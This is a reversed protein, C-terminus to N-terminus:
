ISRYNIWVTENRKRKWGNRNGKKKEKRKKREGQNETIIEFTIGQLIKKVQQKKM